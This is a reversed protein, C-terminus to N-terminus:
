FKLGPLGSCRHPMFSTTRGTGGCASCKSDPIKQGCDTCYGEDIQGAGKCRSCESTLREGCKSCYQPEGMGFHFTPKYYNGTLRLGSGVGLTSQGCKLCRGLVNM